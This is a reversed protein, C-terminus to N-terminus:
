CPTSSPMAPLARLSFRTWLLRRTRTRRIQINQPITVHLLLFLLPISPRQPLKCDEFFRRIEQVRHPSLESLDNYHRYEPDDTCVAIIKDDKEGQGL